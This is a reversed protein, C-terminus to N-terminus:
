LPVHVEFAVVFGNGVQFVPCSLNNLLDGLPSGDHDSLVPLRLHNDHANLFVVTQLRGKSQQLDNLMGFSIYFAPASKRLFLYKLPDFLENLVLIAPLYTM